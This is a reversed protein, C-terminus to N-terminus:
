VAQTSPEPERSDLTRNRSHFVASVTWPGAGAAGMSDDTRSSEAAEWCGAAECRRQAELVALFRLEPPEM